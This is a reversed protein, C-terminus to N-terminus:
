QYVGTACCNTTLTAMGAESNSTSCQRTTRMKAFHYAVCCMSRRRTTVPEIRNTPLNANNPYSSRSTKLSPAGETPPLIAITAIVRVKVNLVDIGITQRM